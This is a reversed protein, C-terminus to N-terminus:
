DVVMPVARKVAVTTTSKSERNVEIGVGDKIAEDFTKVCSQKVAGLLNRDKNYATYLNQFGERLAQPECSNMSDIFEDSMQQLAKRHGADDSWGSLLDAFGAMALSFAMDGLPTCFTKKIVNLGAPLYKPPLIDGTSVRVPELSQTRPASPVTAVQTEVPKDFSNKLQDLTACVNCKQAFHDLDVNNRLQNQDPWVQKSCRVYAIRHNGQRDRGIGAKYSPVGAFSQSEYDYEQTSTINPNIVVKWWDGEDLIDYM